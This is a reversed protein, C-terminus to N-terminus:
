KSAAFRGKSEDVVAMSKRDRPNRGIHAVVRGTQQNDSPLGCTVSVYSRKV